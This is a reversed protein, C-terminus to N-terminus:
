GARENTQHRVPSGAAVSFCEPLACHVLDPDGQSAKCGHASGQYRRRLWGLGLKRDTEADPIWSVAVTIRTPIAIPIARDGIAVIMPRIHPAHDISIGTGVIMAGIHPAHDVAVRTGVVMPRIHPAHDIPVGTGVIMARIHPAHDVAVGTGVHPAHDIPVGAGVIMAGIYPAHDIPRM